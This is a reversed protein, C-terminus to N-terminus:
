FTKYGILWTAKILTVTAGSEDQLQAEVECPTNDELPYPLQFEAVATLKGRAKKVYEAQIGLLIARM